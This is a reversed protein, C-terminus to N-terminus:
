NIQNMFNDFEENFIFGENLLKQKLEEESIELDFNELEFESESREHPCVGARTLAETDVNHFGLNDSQYKNKEFYSGVTLSVSLEEDDNKWISFYLESPKYVKSM